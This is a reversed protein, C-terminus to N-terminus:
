WPWVEQLNTAVKEQRGAERGRCRKWAPMGGGWIGAHLHSSSTTHATRLCSGCSDM